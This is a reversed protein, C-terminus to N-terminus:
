YYNKVAFKLYTESLLPNTKDPIFVNAINLGSDTIFYSPINYKDLPIELKNNPIIYIKVKKLGMKELKRYTDILGRINEYYTLIIIKDSVLRFNNKLVEFEADVCEGCNLVSYRLIISKQNVIDRLIVSDGQINILKQLPNLRHNESENSIFFDSNIKQRQEEIFKKAKTTREEQIDKQKKSQQYNYFLYINFFILLIIIIQPINKKM